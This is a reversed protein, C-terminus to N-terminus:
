WNAFARNFIDETLQENILPILRSEQSQLSGAALDLDHFRTFSQEFSQDPKLANTYKVNVTISL